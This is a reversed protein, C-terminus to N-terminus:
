KEKKKSKSEKKKEAALYKKFLETIKAHNLFINFGIHGSFRCYAEDMDKMEGRTEASGRSYGLQHSYAHCLEHILTDLIDEAKADERWLININCDFPFENFKLCSGYETKGNECTSNTHGVVSLTTELRPLGKLLQDGIDCMILTKKVLFRKSM